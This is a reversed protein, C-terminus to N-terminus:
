SWRNASACGLGGVFVPVTWYLDAGTKQAAMRGQSSPVARRLLRGFFHSIAEAFIAECHRSPAASRTSIQPVETAKLFYVLNYLISLILSHYLTGNDQTDQIDEGRRV